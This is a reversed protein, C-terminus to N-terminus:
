PYLAQLQAIPKLYAQANSALTTGLEQVPKNLRIAQLVDHLKKREPKHMQVGGCAVMPLKLSCALRYHSLYRRQEAGDLLHEVGMWLRCPFLKTLQEGHQRNLAADGGPLWILLGHKLRFPLDNMEVHYAGKPSRRRALTILGSLECYAAKDTVLVVLRCGNTLVFESGIILHTKTKEAEVYAKVVGALSCEDTIALARYGLSAAQSVLEQPSSAGRLFSFYSLCHLEAYASM